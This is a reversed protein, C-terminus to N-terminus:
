QFFCIMFFFFFFFDSTHTLTRSVQISSSSENAVLQIFSELWLDIKTKNDERLYYHLQIAKASEVVGKNLNVSGLSLHLPISRLDTRYWPFVLNVTDINNANYDIIDLIDNSTCTGMVEACVDVNEFTQNDFKMVMRRIKLDLDLIDQLSEVTLINGDSTAILTAYNGDTSMRLSSFMSDNGPFTEQIYKREMKARGDAPTFQEEINNSMRDKLFYFGCGLGTSLILPATLFWWPHSGIFAGIMEFCIRLPREICDTHYRAM